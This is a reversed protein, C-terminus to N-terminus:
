VCVWVTVCVHLVSMCSTALTSLSRMALPAALRLEFLDDIVLINLLCAIFLFFFVFPLPLFLLPSLM